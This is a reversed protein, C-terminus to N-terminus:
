ESTYRHFTKHRLVRVDGAGKVDQRESKGRPRLSVIMGAFHGGAVMLLAIRREEEDEVPPGLQLRRLEELYDGATTLTPFLARHVGFQTDAPLSLSAPAGVANFWIVATRLQARRRLDALEAEEDSDVEGEGPTDAIKAKKKLLRTIRSDSSGSSSSSASGSISSVGATLM